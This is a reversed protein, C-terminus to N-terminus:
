FTNKMIFDLSWKSNLISLLKYPMRKIFSLHENYYYMFEIDKIAKRNLKFAGVGSSRHLSCNLETELKNIMSTLMRYLSINTNTDYGLIPTTLTNNVCFYGIVGILKKDKDLLGRFIFNDNEILKTVLAETIIPNVKSYKDIYLKTYLEVVDKAYTTDTIFIYNALSLLKINNITVLSEIDLM